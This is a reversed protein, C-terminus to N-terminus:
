ARRLNFDDRFFISWTCVPFSRSVIRLIKRVSEHTTHMTNVWDSGGAGVCDVDVPFTRRQVVSIRHIQSAASPLPVLCFLATPFIMSGFYFVCHSACLVHRPHCGTRAGFRVLRTLRLMIHASTYLAYCRKHEGIYFFSNLTVDQAPVSTCLVHRACCRRCAAFHM